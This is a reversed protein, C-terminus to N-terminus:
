SLLQNALALIAEVRERDGSAIYCGALALYDSLAEDKREDSEILSLLIASAEEYFGKHQCARALLRWSERDLGGDQAFPLLTELVMDWFGFQGYLKGLFIAREREDPVLWNLLNLSQEYRDFEGLQLLLALLDRFNDQLPLLLENPININMEDGNSNQEESLGGTQEKAWRKLLAQWLQDNDCADFADKWEGALAHALIHLNWSSPGEPATIPIQSFMESAEKYRHELLALKGKVFIVETKDLETCEEKGELMAKAIELACVPLPYHSLAAKAILIALQRNNNIGNPVFPALARELDDLSRCHPLVLQVFANIAPEYHRRQALASQIAIGFCKLAENLQGMKQHCLGIWHWSAYSTSGETWDFNIPLQNRFQLAQQFAKLAGSWDNIAFRLQGELMWFDPTTIPLQQFERLFALGQHPRNLRLLCEVADCLCRLLYPTFNDGLHFLARRLCYYAREWQSLRLYERGLNYWAFPDTPNERLDKKALELNREIKQKRCIMPKLYGYHEIWVALVGFKADPKVKLISGAIQEHLNREFQIGKLNRFLRFGPHVHGERHSRYGVFSVIPLIFGDYETGQELIKRLKEKGEALVEDADLWLIWEGRAHNLSENRADSFSGTWEFHIVKAGYREAIQTTEDTSGTDVIVIEDVIGKVSELCRPLNEAENKVIMCLSVLPKLQRGDLVKLQSKDPLPEYIDKPCPPRLRPSFLEPVLMIYPRFKEVEPPLNWKKAFHPWAADMMKEVGLRGSTRNGYHHVFSDLALWCRFGAVRARLSHDIDEHMILGFRTDMGGIADIVSRRMLVCFSILTPMEWGSGLNQACWKQAFEHMEKLNRYNVQIQQGSAFNSILGIMGITPDIEMWRLLRDLWGETVVTDSDLFVIFDGEAVALGCNRGAPAGINRENLIVKVNRHQRVLEQLYRISGDTSGNDVIILEFPPRTHAFVSDVCQRLYPLNNWNLVIISVLGDTPENGKSIYNPMPRAALAFGMIQSEDLGMKTAWQYRTLADCLEQPVPDPVVSAFSHTPLWGSEMLTRWLNKRGFFRLHSNDLIGIPEYDWDGCLLKRITHAHGIHPISLVLTADPEVVEHLRELVRQPAVLHELVEGCIVVDFYGKPLKQWVNEDEIDGVIVQEYHQSAIRALEPSIEVGWVECKQRKKLERGAGGMCCGIDLIRNASLPVFKLVNMNCVPQYAYEQQYQRVKAGNYIERKAGSGFGGNQYM